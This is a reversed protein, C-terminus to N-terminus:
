ILAVSLKNTYTLFPKKAGPDIKHDCKEAVKALKRRFFKATKEFVLAVNLRKM